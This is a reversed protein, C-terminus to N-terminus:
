RVTALRCPPIADRSWVRLCVVMLSVQPVAASNGDLADDIEVTPGAFSPRSTERSWRRRAPFLQIGLRLFHRGGGPREIRPVRSTQGARLAQLEEIADEISPRKAPANLFARDLGAIGLSDAQEVVKWISGGFTRGAKKELEALVLKQAEGLCFPWKLVEVLEKANLLRSVTAVTERERIVGTAEDPPSFERLLVNSLGFLQTQRAASIKAALDALVGGLSALTQSDTGQRHELAMAVRGAVSAADTPNMPAALAGLAYGLRAMAISDNSNPNEKQKALDVLTKALVTAARGAVEAADTPNMPASLAALTAGLNDLSFAETEKTNELRDVLVTAGRGVLKAADAPNMRAALAGLANGLRSLRYLDTDTTSELTNALSTAAPGAVKAADTENM